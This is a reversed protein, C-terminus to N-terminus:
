HNAKHSARRRLASPLSFPASAFPDSDIEQIPQHDKLLPPAENPPGNLSISSSSTQSTPTVPSSLDTAQFANSM